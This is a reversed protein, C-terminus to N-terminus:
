VNANFVESSKEKQDLMSIDFYKNGNSRLTAELSKSGGRRKRCQMIACGVLAGLVCGILSITAAQSFTVGDSETSTSTTSHTSRLGKVVPLSAGAEPEPMCNQGVMCADTYFSMWQGNLCQAIYTPFCKGCCCESGYECQMEGICSGGMPQSVPCEAMGLATPVGPFFKTNERLASAFTAGDYLSAIEAPTTAKAKYIIQTKKGDTTIEEEVQDVPMGLTMSFLNHLPEAYQQVTSLDWMGELVYMAMVDHETIFLEEGIDANQNDHAIQMEFINRFSPNNLPELLHQNATVTFGIEVVGNNRYINVKTASPPLGLTRSFIRKLVKQYGQVSELDWPGQMTWVTTVVPDIGVAVCTNGSGPIFVGISQSCELGAACSPFPMGTMENFGECPEGLGALQTSVCTNGAGPISMGGSPQCVLGPACSPFPMGTFENLGECIEGLQALVTASSTSSSEPETTASAATSSSEAASTMASTSATKGDLEVHPCKAKLSSTTACFCDCSGPAFCPDFTSFGSSCDCNEPQTLSRLTTEDRESCDACPPCDSPCFISDLLKIANYWSVGSHEECNSASQVCCRNCNADKYVDTPARCGANSPSESTTADASFAAFICLSLIILKVM